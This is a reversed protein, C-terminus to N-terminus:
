TKFTNSLGPAALLVDGVPPAIVCAGFCSPFFSAKREMWGYMDLEFGDHQKQISLRVHTSHGQSLCEPEWLSTRGDRRTGSPAQHNPDFPFPAM